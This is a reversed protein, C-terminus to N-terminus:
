KGLNDFHKKRTRMMKDEYVPENRYLKGYGGDILTHAENPNVLVVEGEKYGKYNKLIRVKQM